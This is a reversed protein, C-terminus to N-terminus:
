WERICFLWIGAGIASVMLLSEMAYTLVSPGKKRASDVFEKSYMLDPDNAMAPLVYAPDRQVNQMELQRVQDALGADRALLDQYRADDISERHHYVWAARDGSNVASSLLYGMLYPSWYDNYYTPHYGGYYGQRRNDYDRYRTEDVYRIIQM